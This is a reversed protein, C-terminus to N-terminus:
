SKRRRLFESAGDSGPAGSASHASARLQRDGLRKAGACLLRRFAPLQLAPLWSLWSALEPSFTVSALFGGFYQASLLVGVEAAKQRPGSVSEFTQLGPRLGPFWSLHSRCMAAKRLSAALNHQCAQLTSSSVWFACFHSLTAIYCCAFIAFRSLRVVAESGHHTEAAM